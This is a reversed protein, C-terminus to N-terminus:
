RSRFGSISIYICVLSSEIMKFSSSFGEGNQSCLVSFCGLSWILSTYSLGVDVLELQIIEFLDRLQEWDKYGSFQSSRIGVRNTM